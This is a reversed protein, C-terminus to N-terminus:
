RSRRVVRRNYRKILRPIEIVAVIILLIIVAIAISLWIPIVYFTTTATITQGKGYGFDGRLTYKGFHGINKLPVSFKRVSGPLVNGAAEGSNVETTYVTKGRFNTVTMKGFPQEQVDGSNQFRVVGDIGNPGGFISHIKDNKRTDISAITMVEKYNGPVKVLILSAVSASLAVNQNGSANNDAAFRVAGFYGGASASAPITIPVKVDKQENPQLTVPSLSPVFQKLSHTPAAQNNLLLAPNGSEDGSAQFDNVTVQFTTPQSTVNTIYVDVTKSTGPPITIDTHVPSVKLGNGGGAATAAFAPMTAGFLIAIATVVGTFKTLMTRRQTM